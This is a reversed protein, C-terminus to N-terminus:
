SVTEMYWYAADMLFRLLGKGTLIEDFGVGDDFDCKFFYDGPEVSSPYQGYYNEDDEPRHVWTDVPCGDRGAGEVIDQDPDEIEILVLAGYKEIDQKTVDHFSKDRDHAIHSIMATIASDINESGTAFVIGGLEQEVEEDSFEAYESGYAEEVFSGIMPILMGLQKIKRAAKRTTGHYLTVPTAPLDETNLLLRAKPPHHPM